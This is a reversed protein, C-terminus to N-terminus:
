LFLLSVAALKMLINYKPSFLFIFDQATFLMHHEPGIISLAVTQISIRSARIEWSAVVARIAFGPVSVVSNYLTQKKQPATTHSLLTM